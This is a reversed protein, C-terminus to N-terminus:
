TTSGKRGCFIHLAPPWTPKQASRIEVGPVLGYLPLEALPVIAIDAPVNNREIHGSLARQMAADPAEKKDRVVGWFPHHRMPEDSM